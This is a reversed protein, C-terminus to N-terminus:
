VKRNIRTRALRKIPRRGFAETQAVELGSVAGFNIGANGGGKRWYREEREDSTRDGLRWGVIIRHGASLRTQAAKVQRQM